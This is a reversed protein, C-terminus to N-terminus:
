RSYISHQTWSYALSIAEFSKSMAEPEDDSLKEINIM